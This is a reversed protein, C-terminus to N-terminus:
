LWGGETRAGKQNYQKPHSSFCSSLCSQASGEPESGGGGGRSAPAAGVLHWGHGWRAGLNGLHSRPEPRVQPPLFPPRLAGPSGPRARAGEGKPERGGRDCARLSGQATGASCRHCSSLVLACTLGSCARSDAGPQSLMYIVGSPSASSAWGGSGQGGPDLGGGRGGAPVSRGRPRECGRGGEQPARGPKGRSEEARAGEVSMACGGGSIQWCGAPRSAAGGLGAIARGQPDRAQRSPLRKWCGRPPTGRCSSRRTSPEAHRPTAQLRRVSKQLRWAVYTVEATM